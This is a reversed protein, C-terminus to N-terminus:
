VRSRSWEPGNGISSGDTEREDAHFIRWGKKEMYVADAVSVWSHSWTRCQYPVPLRIANLLNETYIFRGRAVEEADEAWGSVAEGAAAWAGSNMLRLDTEVQGM